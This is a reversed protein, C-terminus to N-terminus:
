AWRQLDALIDDCALEYATIADVRLCSVGVMERRKKVLRVVRRHEAHLLREVKALEDVSCTNLYLKEVLRAARDPKRM